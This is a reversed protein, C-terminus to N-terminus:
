AAKAHKEELQGNEPNLWVEKIPTCNLVRGTIWREPHRRRAELMTERRRRLVEADEGRYRQGPTVMRIGRHRHHENYHDVFGQVWQEAEEANDFGDRPYLYDGSYKLTRFFSESYPNDNSVRPRSHSFTIGNKELLALTPAAKMSAGNDSHVVLQGPKIGYRRFADGLFRAAFDANDAEFVRASVVMRSYVDVIVYAYYFRGTYKSSRLYTIDWTWVENPKQASYATPKSRRRAERTPARRANLGRARFLRYLTSLSCWYEKNEDLLKYFAQTLSLDRVDAKCFRDVIQERLDEPIQRPSTFNSRDLRGDGDPAHRWNQLTRPTIGVAECSQRQSLGKSQGLEVLSVIERRDHASILKGKGGSRRPKKSLMLMTAADALAKDKRAIERDKRANEKKLESMASMQADHLKKDVADPHNNFWEAWADVTSALYGHKRCFQGFATESMIERAVVATHAQLYTVGKPLKLSTMLKPNGKNPLTGCGAQERAIRLWYSITSKGISYQEVAESISLEKSLLRAVVNDKFEQSYRM